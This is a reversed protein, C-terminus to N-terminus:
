GAAPKKRAVSPIKHDNIGRDKKKMDNILVLSCNQIKDNQMTGAARFGIEGLQMLLKYSSFFNDFFVSYVQPNSCVALAKKVVWPGFTDETKEIPKGEYIHLHYPMGASSALVQLKFTFRIPKARMFQKCSHRGLPVMSEDVSLSEHVIGFQVIKTNLLDYLPKVEAMRSDQELFSNDAVHFVSKIKDFRNRSMTEQFSNCVLDPDISWYDRQSKRINYGSLSLLGVFNM